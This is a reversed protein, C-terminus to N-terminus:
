AAARRIVPLQSRLMHERVVLQVVRDVVPVVIENALTADAGKTTMALRLQRRVSQGVRGRVYGRFEAVEMPPSADLQAFLGAACQEAVVRILEGNRDGASQRRRRWQFM